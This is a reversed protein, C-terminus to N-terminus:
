QYPFRSPYAHMDVPQYEIHIHNSHFMVQFNQGLEAKLLAIIKNRTEESLDRSRLDVAHGAYHLSYKSHTDGRASTVTLASKHVEWVDSCRDLCWLMPQQLGFLRVGPKFQIMSM